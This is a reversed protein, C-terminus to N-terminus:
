VPFIDLFSGALVTLTGTSEGMQVTLTGASALTITGDIDMVFGNANTISGSITSTANFGTYSFGANVATSRIVTLGVNGSPSGPGNIRFNLTSTTGINFFVKGHVRYTRIGVTATFVTFLTTGSTGASVLTRIQTNYVQSDTGDVVRLLGTTSAFVVANGSSAAPSAQGTLIVNGALNVALASGDANGLLASPGSTGDASTGQLVVYPYGSLASSDASPGAILLGPNSSASGPAEIKVGGPQALAPQGPYNTNAQYTLLLEGINLEAIVGSNYSTVGALYSNGHSDTGAAKTISAILNGNAPTGSYFFAGSSNIEFDNGDFTGRIVLNNFEASGDKRIEWGSVGTIFNPSLIQGITLAGGKTISYNKFPM